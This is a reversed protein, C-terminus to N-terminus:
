RSNMSHIAELVAQPEILDMCDRTPCAEDFDNKYCMLCDLKPELAVGRGYMYFEYRNFTNNLLVIKKKLGVAVHFAFSVGTVILEARDLLGMFEIMPFTGFYKAGSRRAIERNMEDEQPGGALFVENGQALLTHALEAWRHISYRRPKWADGVGTNLAIVRKNGAIDV